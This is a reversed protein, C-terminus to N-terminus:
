CFGAFGLDSLIREPGRRSSFEAGVERPEQAALHHDGHRRARGNLRQSRHRHDEVVGALFIGHQSPM